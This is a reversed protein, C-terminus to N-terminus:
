TITVSLGEVAIKFTDGASVAKEAELAGAWLFTGATEASWLSVQKYTESTSVAVWELASESKLTTTGTVKTAKRTAETAANETGAVGPAGTHLKVWVKEYITPATNKLAKLLNEEFTASIPM